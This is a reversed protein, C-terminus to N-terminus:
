LMSDMKLYVGVVGAMIDTWGMREREAASKIAVNSSPMPAVVDGFAQQQQGSWEVLLDECKAFCADKQSYSLQIGGHLAAASLANEIVNGAYAACCLAITRRTPAAGRGLLCNVVRMVVEMKVAPDAMPHTAMEFVLFNRKETRLVSKDVLGKALRERVQKLQYSMKLVNWTEGSLLDVWDTVSQRAQTAPTGSTANSTSLRSNSGGTALNIARNLTRNNTLQALATTATGSQDAKMVKLAEDLLVEGTPRDDIVEILRETFLKKHHRGAYEKVCAIRNRMSLEM